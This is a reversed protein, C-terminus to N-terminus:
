RLEEEASWESDFSDAFAAQLEHVFPQYAAAGAEEVFQQGEVLTSRAATEDGRRICARAMALWPELM